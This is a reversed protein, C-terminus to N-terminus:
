SEKLAAKARAHAMVDRFAAYDHERDASDIVYEYLSAQESEKLANDLRLAIVEESDTQRLTLRNRLEAENVLIFVDTYAHRIVPHACARVQEAGQVDIDLIVDLGRELYDVVESILTGYFNGHVEAYELFDGAEIKQTFAEKTLFHYDLGDTEGPRM